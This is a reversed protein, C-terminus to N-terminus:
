KAPTPEPSSVSLALNNGDYDRIVQTKIMKLLDENKMALKNKLNSYAQTQSTQVQNYADVQAQNNQLISQAEGEALNITVNKQFLASKILTDVEVSVKKQEAKAINIDQKKVETEQIANEFANPLDVSRLQLFVVDSYCNIIFQARLKKEFDDKILKRNWFFDNATFYTSEETLIDVAVNQFISHYNEGYAHFLTFLSVPDIQFQFSVEIIVELGDKTRSQISALNAGRERSFEITQVM